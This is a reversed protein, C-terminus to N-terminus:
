FNKKAYAKRESPTAKRCSIVRINSHRETFIVVLMRGKSSNGISVYRQEADSHEPDPFTWLYPDDFITKAEDFGIQHKKFNIIAKTEDWEFTLRM